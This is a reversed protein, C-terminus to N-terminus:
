EAWARDGRKYPLAGNYKGPVAVHRLVEKMGKESTFFAFLTLQKMLTFYHNGLPKLEEQQKDESQANTQADTSSGEQEKAQKIKWDIAGKKEQHERAEKDLQQLLQTREEASADLFEKGHMKKCAENLERIGDHFVKQDEETYCDNVYVPIFRGVGADKAGPTNTRPLITEAVEDLFSIDLDTFAPGGLKPTNKCGSLLLEGGIFVSGTALAIMKLLERREM